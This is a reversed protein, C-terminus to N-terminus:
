NRYVKILTQQHQPLMSQSVKKLCLLVVALGSVAEQLRQLRDIVDYSVRRLDRCNLKLLECALIVMNLESIFKQHFGMRIYTCEM